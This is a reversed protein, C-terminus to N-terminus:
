ARDTKLRGFVSRIIPLSILWIVLIGYGIDAHLRYRNGEATAERPDFTHTEHQVFPGAPSYWGYWAFLVCLLLIGGWVVPAPVRHFAIAAFIGFVLTCILLWFVLGESMGATRGLPVRRLLGVLIVALFAGYLFRYTPLVLKM